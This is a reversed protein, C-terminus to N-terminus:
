WLRSGVLSYRQVDLLSLEKKGPRGPFSQQGYLGVTSANDDRKDVMDMMQAQQATEAPTEGIPPRGKANRQDELEREHRQAYRKTAYNVLHVGLLIKLVVLAVWGILMVLGMMVGLTVFDWWRDVTDLDMDEKTMWLMDIIQFAIRISVCVLPLVALGLRRTALPSQDVFSAQRQTYGDMAVSTKPPLVDRCLVDMYRGYIAPRIHNSKTIFAHKLWDVLMESILVTFVPNLTRFFVNVYPYVDFSTPLPGMASAGGIANAGSVEILNRLGIAALIISLQFREVVDACTLQFLNEKEFRKFVTTKIEVFQNSLLLTLLANDYSNIAVNLTVLQYLLVFTHFVIYALCLLYYGFMRLYRQSGDSRRALTRRSFLSDLADQGFSACLRDSIELVSFIVSLKVVDQGRVSHYMKSADAVHALLYCTQIVLLGKLIDCKNSVNLYRKKGAALWVYTNYAWRTWAVLFRLPLITITHLFSNLCIFQGLWILKEVWVPVAMFNSVREWKMEQASECSNTLVEDLLQDWLSMMAMRRVPRAPRSQSSLDAHAFDPPASMGFVVTLAYYAHHLKTWVPQSAETSATKKETDTSREMKTTPVHSSRRRTRDQSTYADSREDENASGDDALSVATASSSPRRALPKIVHETSSAMGATDTKPSRKLFESTVPSPLATSIHGEASAMDSSADTDEDEWVDEETMRWRLNPKSKDEDGPRGLTHGNRHRTETWPM